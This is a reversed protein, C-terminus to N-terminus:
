SVGMNNTLQFEDFLAELLQKSRETGNREISEINLIYTNGGNTSGGIAKMQEALTRAFPKSYKRNTLPVIAEAGAEGVIDLPVAKHAIAGGAHYRPAVNGVIGGSAHYRIGGAANKRIGGAANGSTVASVITSWTRGVISQLTSLLNNVKDQGSVSVSATAKANTGNVKGLSSKTANLKSSGSGDAASGTVNASRSVNYLSDEGKKTTDMGSKASGNVANGNVDTAVTKDYLSDESKQTDDLGDEATGDVANGDVTATATKDVFETDNWTWVHGNADVLDGDGNININGDQDKLDQKNYLAIAAVIEDIDGNCATALAEFNSAGMSALQDSTVGANAMATALTDVSIGMDSLKTTFGEGFGNLTDTLSQVTQEMGEMQQQCWEANEGAKKVQESAESVDDTYQEVKEKAKDRENSLKAYETSTQAAEVGNEKVWQKCKEEAKAHKETAQSLNERAKSLELEAKTQNKLYGSMADAYAQKKANYEYADANAKIAETSRSLTGTQNDTIEVSDGTIKNYGEVAQKLKDLKLASGDCHGALEEITQTYIALKASNEETKGLSDALKDSTKSLAKYVKDVNPEMNSYVDGLTGVSDKADKAIDSASRMASNVLDQHEKWENYKTVALGIAATIGAIALSIGVTSAAELAMSGLGTALAKVTSTSSKSATGVKAINTSATASETASEALQAELVSIGSAAKRAESDSKSWTTVLTSNQKFSNQAEISEEALATEVNRAADAMQQAKDAAKKYKETSKDHVGGNKEVAQMWEETAAKAKEAATASTQGAIELKKKLTEVQHAATTMGEWAEVYNKVGGAAEAAKNGSLGVKSAVTNASEYVRMQSGDVTDLADKLVAFNQQAKGISTVVNGVGQTLKGFVTLVPGAATAIGAIGLIFQQTDTDANAFTSALNGITNILPSAADLASILANVLPVGVQIAIADVKNKLVQLRSAMSENRTNVEDTMATNESWATNARDVAGKLTDTNGALRRMVDAQRTSTIGLASLTDEVSTGNENLDHMGQVVMELAEVPSSEWKSAFEQASVGAVRAYEELDDGGASVAKSIKAVIQTMATGGAEAKIGLSAMAGAMGMIDAQSFNATSSLGALRLSMNSIDSETTALNNGLDVLCSGYNDFEDAGMKTINAFQALQTAATDADLNTAIDISSVTKAFSELNDDAVGLQGGLAEINLIAEASVPQTKSLELASDALKQIEDDTMDTTKRVNAMATDYSIAANAAYTGMMVMPVTVSKTLMTGVKEIKTGANYIKGGLEAWKAGQKAIESSTSKSSAAALVSLRQIQKQAKAIADGNWRANVAITISAQGM